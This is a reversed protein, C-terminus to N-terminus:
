KASEVAERQDEALGGNYGANKRCKDLLTLDTERSKWSPTGLNPDVWSVSDECDYIPKAWIPNAKLDALADERGQEYVKLASYPISEQSAPQDIVPTACGSLLLAIAIIRNSDM